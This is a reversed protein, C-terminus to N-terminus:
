SVLIVGVVDDKDFTEGLDEVEGGKFLKGTSDWGYSVKEQGVSFYIFNYLIVM